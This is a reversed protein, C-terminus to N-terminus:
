DEGFLAGLDRAGHVVRLVEVLEGDFRFFILYRGHRSARLGPEIEIRERYALPRKATAAIAARLERAFSMARVPNNRAIYRAIETIDREASPSTVFRPM